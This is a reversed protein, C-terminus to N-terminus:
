KKAKTRSNMKNRVRASGPRKGDQTAFRQNGTNPFRTQTKGQMAQDAAMANQDNYFQNDMPANQQSNHPDHIGGHM